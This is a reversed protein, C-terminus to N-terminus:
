RMKGFERLGCHRPDPPVIGIRGAARPLPNMSVNAFVLAADAQHIRPATGTVVDVDTGGVQDDIASGTWLGAHSRGGSPFDMTM